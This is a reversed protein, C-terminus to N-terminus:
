TRSCPCAMNSLIWLIPLISSPSTSAVSFSSFADTDTDTDVFMCMEHLCWSMERSYPVVLKSQVTFCVEVFVKNLELLSIPKGLCGWKGQGFVLEVTNEMIRLKDPEASARLWREPSFLEADSGFVVKDRLVAHASWGVHTNAPIRQGCVVGEDDSMRPMIGTIPPWIRFCEKILAQLYPLGRAQADTIPSSIQGAKIGEDIENQLRRYVLPSTSIHMM